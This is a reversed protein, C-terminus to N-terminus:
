EWSYTRNSPPLAAPNIGSSGSPPFGLFIRINAGTLFVRRAGSGAGALVVMTLSVTGAAGVLHATEVPRLKITVISPHNGYESITRMRPSPLNTYASLM